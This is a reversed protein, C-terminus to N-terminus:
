IIFKCENTWVKLAGILRRYMKSLTLFCQTHTHTHTHTCWPWTEQELYHQLGETDTVIPLSIILVCNMKWCTDIALIVSTWAVCCKWHHSKTIRSFDCGTAHGLSKEDTPQFHFCTVFNVPKIEALFNRTCLMCRLSCVLWYLSTFLDVSLLDFSIASEKIWILRRNKQKAKNRLNM